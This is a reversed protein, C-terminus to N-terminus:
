GIESECAEMLEEETMVHKNLGWEIVFKRHVNEINGGAMDDYKAVIHDVTEESLGPVGNMPQFKSLWIKKLAEAGPKEFEIKYLFRREYAKDFNGKLNTTAILIGEFKEFEELIINQASNESQAVVANSGATSLSSRKQIISDAENLLLIPTNRGKAHAVDVCKRYDEFIKRANKETEGVASDRIETIDIPFIDRQGKKAIQYVSETKGVGAAGYFLVCFGKREGLQELREQVERFNGPSFVNHLTAIQKGEKENFFLDKEKIDEWLIYKKPFDVKSIDFGYKYKPKEPKPAEAKPIEVKPQETKPILGNEEEIRRRTEAPMNEWAQDLDSLVKKVSEPEWIDTAAMAREQMEKTRRHFDAMNRHEGVRQRDEEKQRDAEAIIQDFLPNVMDQYGKWIGMLISDEQEM